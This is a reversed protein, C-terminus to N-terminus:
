ALAEQPNSISETDKWRKFGGTSTIWKGMLFVTRTHGIHEHYLGRSGGACWGFNRGTVRIVRVVKKGHLAEAQGDAVLQAARAGPVDFLIRSEDSGVVRVKRAFQLM